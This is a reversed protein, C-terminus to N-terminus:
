LSNAIKIVQGANLSSNGNIEYWIGNNIWSAKDADYIYITKGKEQLTQYSRNNSTVYNALLADNNWESKKQTISYSRDDSNSKYKITLEGTKYEIPGNFSFGSAKYEPIGGNVGSKTSALKLAFNATNNYAFYIGLITFALVIISINLLSPKTKLKKAIKHRRTTKHPPKAHSNSNKLANELVSKSGKNTAKPKPTAALVPTTHKITPQPTDEAPATAIPLPSYKVQNPISQGFKSILRSQKIDKARKERTHDVFLNKNKNVTPSTKTNQKTAKPKNVIRRVLTKSKDTQRSIHQTNRKIVPQKIPKPSMFGDVNASSSLRHAPTSKVTKTLLEGSVADYRNGNLTIVNRRSGM